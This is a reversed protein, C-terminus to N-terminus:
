RRVPLFARRRVQLLLVGAVMLLTAVALSLRVDLGTEPITPLPLPANVPVIDRVGPLAPLSEQNGSTLGVCAYEGFPMKTLRYGGLSNAVTRFTWDDANGFINDPGAWRCTVTSNPYPNGTTPDFVTGVITGPGQARFNATATGGNAQAGLVGAPAPAPPADVVVVWDTGGDSDGTQFVIIPDQTVSVRYTGARLDTMRYAGSPGTVATLVQEPLSEPTIAGGERPAILEATVTWGILPADGTNYTGSGDRDIWVRGALDTLLPDIDVTESDTYERATEDGPAYGSVLAVNPISELDLVDSETIEYTGTCTVTEGPAVVFTGNTGEVGTGGTCALDLLLEDSVEVSSMTVNGINEVTITYTIIDGVLEVTSRDAVKSISLGPDAALEITELGEGETDTSSALAINSVSGADLDDQVLAYDGTCTRSEGPALTDIVNDDTTDSETTGCFLDADAIKNDTLTVELETINGSNTVVYTYTAVDGADARDDPGAVTIDLEGSKDVEISHDAPLDKTVSEEHTVEVEGPGYATVLVTNTVGGSDIDAQTITYVATCTVDAGLRTISAIVNTPETAGDCLIEGDDSDIKDDVVSIDSLDATGTNSVVYTYTITDGADARGDVGGEVDTVEGATKTVAVAPVPEEVLVTASAPTSELLDATADIEVNGYEAIASNVRSGTTAGLDVGYIITISGGAPVTIPGRITLPDTATPTAPSGDVDLTGTLYTSGTPLTDVIYDLRVDRAEDNSIVLTYEVETSQGVEINPRDVTKDITVNFISSVPPLSPYLGSLTTHKIQTGSAIYQIPVVPTSTAVPGVARFTYRATYPRNPGSASVPLKLQDVYTQQPATGNPSITLETRELRWAGSPFSALATPTYNLAGPDYAPGAGLTGTNGNVTVTVSDGLIVETTTDSSVSTVKNANAAITDVVRDYTFTTTCIAAGGRAPSGDLISITHSQAAATVGSAKLLFFRAQSGGPGSADLADIPQAAAETSGLSVVGGTFNSLSMWLGDRASGNADVLYGAFQAFLQDRDQDIYFNPSQLATVDPTGATGCEPAAAGAISAGPIPAVTVVASAALMVGAVVVRPIKRM